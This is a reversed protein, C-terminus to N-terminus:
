HIKEMYNKLEEDIWTAKTARLGKKFLAHKDMISLLLKMFKDLATDPHRELYM